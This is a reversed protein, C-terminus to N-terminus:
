ALADEKVPHQLNSSGSALTVGDFFRACWHAYVLSMASRQTHFDPARSHSSRACWSDLSTSLTFVPNERGWLDTLGSRLFASPSVAFAYKPHYAPWSSAIHRPLVAGHHFSHISRMQERLGAAQWTSWIYLKWLIEFASEREAAHCCFPSALDNWQDCPIVKEWVKAQALCARWPNTSTDKASKCPIVEGPLQNGCHLLPVPTLAYLYCSLFM